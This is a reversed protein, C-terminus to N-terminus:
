LSIYYELSEQILSNNATQNLIITGIESIMTFNIIQNENKKDKTMLHLYTSFNSKKLKYKGYHNIIYTSIKDLSQASLGVVKHSLFSECILGIAVAEGHLLSIGNSLAHSEIAHGITHGFNLSKRLGMEFPDKHVVSKKIELSPIIYKEWDTVESIKKINQLEIWDDKSAILGHKILEAFGSRIERISLTKLFDASVCVQSPNKFLGVANKLNMFDIGLKGGISADVQSLLTTPIQIFDMGRYFTSATFGGMDGIVGGGLNIMCSKRDAGNKVMESWIFQCTEINKHIEGSQIEILHFDLNSINNEFIPLCHEKTNQDALVFISSYKKLQIEKWFDGIQIKYTDLDIVKM